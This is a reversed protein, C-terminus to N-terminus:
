LTLDVDGNNPAGTNTTCNTFGGFAKGGNGLSKLKSASEWKVHGDCFLINEGELHINVFNFVFNGYSLQYAAYQAASASFGCPSTGNMYSVWRGDYYLNADELTMITTTPTTLMNLSAAQGTCAQVNCGGGHLYKNVAVGNANAVGALFANMQYSVQFNAPNQANIPNEVMASSFSPCRLVQSSKLYPQVTTSWPISGNGAVNWTPTPTGDSPFQEDYDQTYQLIGMGIQKLNSQCSARRSNERVRGFVPFLIAALLSIIAIVVLLEILTFGRQSAKRGFVQMM